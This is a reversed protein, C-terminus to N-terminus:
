VGAIMRGFNFLGDPDFSAKVGQTLRALPPSLPEFVDVRARLADPARVLTAHGGLPALAARVAAAASETPDSALWVLGGGWDYFHDLRWRASGRSSARDRPRRLASAGSRANRPSPSSNPTACRAGYASRIGRRAARAQRRVRRAARHATRRSLRGIRRFRRRALLHSSIRPGHRRRDDRRRQRRLALRARADDRRRRARRRPPPHRDDGRKAAQAAAQVDGRHRPRANRARRLDLKVLDLGTVNKMVRGGSKVCEGRGNVLRLGILRRAGRRRQHAAAGLRQDRGPRRGDARRRSAYLARHDIPEFPLMQGHAALAAEVVGLPTGARLSITMEAPEHFVIGALRATALRAGGERPRGLGARTGGGVIDLKIRDKPAGRARSGGGGSRRRACRERRDLVTVGARGDLPFVKAPNLRWQPDFAARVRMQQALDAETFQRRMLDRKEIGVGHEGTLCGGLEVCLKLVDMGADEAKQQQAPDNVDYLILPHMNGDGAHFVNAVRLGYAACIEGTRRLAEPLRGTPVTGDMCIYDAVRGTAGFASKRGKWIQASEMASMSERITRVRHAKAIATIKGLEAAM